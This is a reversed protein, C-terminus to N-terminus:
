YLSLYAAGADKCYFVVIVEEPAYLLTSAVPANAYHVHSVDYPM